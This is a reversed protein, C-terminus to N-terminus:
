LMSRVVVWGQLTGTGTKDIVLAEDVLAGVLVPSLGGVERIEEDAQFAQTGSITTSGSKFLYTGTNTASEKMYLFGVEFRKGNTPTYVTTGSVTGTAITIDHTEWVGESAM